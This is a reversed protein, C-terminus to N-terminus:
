GAGVGPRGAGQSTPSDGAGRDVGDGGPVTRVVEFLLHVLANTGFGEALLNFDGAVSESVPKASQPPVTDMRFGVGTVRKMLHSVMEVEHRSYALTTATNDEQAGLGEAGSIDDSPVPGLSYVGRTM